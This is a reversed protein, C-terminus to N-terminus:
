QLESVERLFKVLDDYNVQGAVKYGQYVAAYFMAPIHRVLHFTKSGSSFVTGANRLAQVIDMNLVYKHWGENVSESMLNIQKITHEPKIDMEIGITFNSMADLQGQTFAHPTHKYLTDDAELETVDCGCAALKAAIMRFGYNSDTSGLTERLAAIEKADLTEIWEYDEKAMNYDLMNRLIDTHWNKIASFAFYDSHQYNHILEIDEAPMKYWSIYPYRRFLLLCSQTDFGEIADFEGLSYRRLLGLLNNRRIDILEKSFDEKAVVPVYEPKGSFGLGRLINNVGIPRCASKLLEGDRLKM